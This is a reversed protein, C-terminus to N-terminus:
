RVVVKKGNIVYIGKQLHKLDVRVGSLNYAVGEAEDTLADVREIGTPDFVNFPQTTLVVDPYYRSTASIVVGQQPTFFNLRYSQYTYDKGQTLTEGDKNTLELAAAVGSGWGNRMFYTQWEPNPKNIEVDESIFFPRQPTVVAPMTYTKKTQNYITPFSNFFLCNDAVDLYSLTASCAKDWTIKSLRNNGATLSVLGPSGTLILSDLVNNSVWLDQLLALSPMYLTVLQNNEGVLKRLEKCKSISVSQVRNNQFFLSRLQSMSSLYAVTTINNGACILSSMNGVGNSRLGVATLQNGAVNVDEMVLSTISLTTLQNDQCDLSTLAKCNSLDLTTLKNQACYLRLLSSAAGSVDLQTLEDECVYLSTIAKDSTLSLSEARVLVEQPLGTTHLREESGDSWTITLNLGANVAIVMPSGIPKDTRMSVDAAMMPISYLSLILFGLVSYLKRM